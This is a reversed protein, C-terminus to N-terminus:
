ASSILMARRSWIWFRDGTEVNWGKLLSGNSSRLLIQSSYSKGGRMTSIKKLSIGGEDSGGSVNMLGEVHM